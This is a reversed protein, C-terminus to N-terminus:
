SIQKPFLSPVFDYLGVSLTHFVPYGAGVKEQYIALIILKSHLILLRNM